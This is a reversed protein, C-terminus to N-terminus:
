EDPPISSIQTFANAATKGLLTSFETVVLETVYPTQRRNSILSTLPARTPLLRRSFLGLYITGVVTFIIGLPMFEFLSFGPGGAKRYLDDILINTSTGILTMTGGTISLYSLPIMVKSPQLNLRRCVSLLVPVMMIVVPTNNIFASAPPIFLGMLLIMRRVSRGAWRIMFSAVIDLAGTRMLGSSLVFMAGVTVTATSSFGSFADEVSLLGTGALSFIILLSTVETPLWRTIYLLTMAALILLLIHQPNLSM